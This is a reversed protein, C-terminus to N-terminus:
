TYSNFLTDIILNVVQATYDTGARRLENLNISIVEGNVNGAYKTVLERSPPANVIIKRASLAEQNDRLLRVDLFVAIEPNMVPGRVHIPEKSVRVHIKALTERREPDYEPYSIVYFGQRILRQVLQDAM